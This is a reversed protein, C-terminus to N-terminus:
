QKEVKMGVGIDNWMECGPAHGFSTVDAAFFNANNLQQNWDYSNYFESPKRRVTLIKDDQPCPSPLRRTIQPLEDQPLIDKYLVGDIGDNPQPTMKFRYGAKAQAALQEDLQQNSLMTQHTAFQQQQLQQQQIAANSHAYSLRELENRACSMSCFRRERTYFSHKVGIAGCRECVASFAFFFPSSKGSSTLHHSMIAFHFQDFATHMDITHSYLYSPTNETLM